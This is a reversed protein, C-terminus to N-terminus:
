KKDHSDVLLALTKMADEFTEFSDFFFEKKDRVQPAIDGYDFCIVFGTINIQEFKSEAWEFSVQVTEGDPLTMVAAHYLRVIRDLFVEEGLFQTSM